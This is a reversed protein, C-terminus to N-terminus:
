YALKKWWIVVGSIVMAALLLSSLSVLIHTALGYVDGTHISRNFRIVRYGMSDTLFNRVNLVKGSFQDVTVSSHVAPSTEEPVRMLVTFAGAPEQPVVLVTPTAGPLAKRAIDLVQDALIPAAGAVPMSAFSKPPAPRSSKTISYIWKEGFDFGILVGTVSAIVLFLSAYIGIM